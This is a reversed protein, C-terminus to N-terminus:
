SSSVTCSWCWFLTKPPYNPSNVLWCHSKMCVSLCVQGSSDLVSPVTSDIMMERVCVCVVCMCPCQRCLQVACIGSSHHSVPLLPQSTLPIDTSSSNQPSAATGNPNHHICQLRLLCSSNLLITQDKALTFLTRTLTTIHWINVPLQGIPQLKATSSNAVQFDLIVGTIMSGTMLLAEIQESYSLLAVPCVASRQYTGPLIHKPKLIHSSSSAKGKEWGGGGRRQWEIVKNGQSLDADQCQKLQLWHRRNDVRSFGM